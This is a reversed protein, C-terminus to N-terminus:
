ISYLISLTVAESVLHWSCCFRKSIHSNFLHNLESVLYTPATKLNIGWFYKLKTYMNVKSIASLQDISCIGTLYYLSPRQILLSCLALHLPLFTVLCVQVFLFLIGILFLTFPRPCKGMQYLNTRRKIKVLYQISVFM